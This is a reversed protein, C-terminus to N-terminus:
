TSPGTDSTTFTVTGDPAVRVDWFSPELRDTDYIWFQFRAGQDDFEASPPVFREPPLQGPRLLVHGDPRDLVVGSRIARLRLFLHAFKHVDLVGPREGVGLRRMVEDFDGPRGSTLMEDPGVLYIVEGARGTLRPMVSFAYLGAVDLDPVRAVTADRLPPITAIKERVRREADEPTFESVPTSSMSVAEEGRSRDMALAVSVAVLAVLCGLRVVDVGSM